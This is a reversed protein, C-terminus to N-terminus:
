LCCCHHAGSGQASTCGVAQRGGLTSRVCENFSTISVAAAEAALAAEWSRRYRAGGERPVTAAGNWPRIKTDAYGPGVSPVFLRGHRAAWASIAPWNTPDAGWSVSESAFYTYAGDFGGQEATTPSHSPSHTNAPAFSAAPVRGLADVPLPLLCCGVIGPLLEGDGAGADLWLGLFVPQQQQRADAPPGM